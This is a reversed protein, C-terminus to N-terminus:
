GQRPVSPRRPERWAEVDQKAETVTQGDGGPASASPLQWRKLGGPERTLPHALSTLRLKPEGRATAAIRDLGTARVPPEASPM